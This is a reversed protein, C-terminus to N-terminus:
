GEALIDVIPLEVLLHKGVVFLLITSLLSMLSSEELLHEFSQVFQALVLFVELFAHDGLYDFTVRHTSARSVLGFARFASIIGHQGRVPVLSISRPALAISISDEFLELFYFFIFEISSLFDFISLAEILDEFGQHRLSRSVDVLM